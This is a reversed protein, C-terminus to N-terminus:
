GPGGGDAAALALVRTGFATSELLARYIEAPRTQDVGSDRVAQPVAHRLVDIYDDPV